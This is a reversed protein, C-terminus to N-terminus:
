MAQHVHLERQHQHHHHHHHPSTPPGTGDRGTGFHVNDDPSCEWVALWDSLSLRVFLWVQSLFAVAPHWRELLLTVGALEVCSFVSFSLTPDNPPCQPIEHNMKHKIKLWIFIIQSLIQLAVLWYHVLVTLSVRDQCCSLVCAINRTLSYKNFIILLKANM